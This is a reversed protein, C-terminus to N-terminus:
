RNFWNSKNENCNILRKINARHNWIILGSITIIFICYYVSTHYVLIGVILYILAAVCAGLSVYRSLKITLIWSILCILSIIPSLYLIVALSTLVGKGGKFEFFIPFDHGLVLCIGSILLCMGLDLNLMKGFIQCIFMGIIGKSFDFAFVLISIKTGLFRLANTFGANKSGKTRIDIKRFM